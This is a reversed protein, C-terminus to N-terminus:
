CRASAAYFGPNKKVGTKRPRGATAPRRIDLLKAAEPQSVPSAAMAADDKRIHKPLNATRAAIMAGGEAVPV